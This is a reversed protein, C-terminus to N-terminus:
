AFPDRSPGRSSGDSRAATSRRLGRDGISRRNKPRTASPATGSGPTYGARAAEDAVHQGECLARLAELWDTVVPIPSLGLEKLEEALERQSRTLKKGKGTPNKIEVLNWRGCRFCLVLLDAPEDLRWVKLWHHRELMQIIEPENGDRNLPKKWPPKAM